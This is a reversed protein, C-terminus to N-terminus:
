PQSSTMPAHMKKKNPPLIGVSFTQERGGDIGYAKYRNIVIDIALHIQEARRGGTDDDSASM